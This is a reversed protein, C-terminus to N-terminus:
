RWHLQQLAEHLGGDNYEGAGVAVGVGQVGGAQGGADAFLRGAGGNLAQAQVVLFLQDAPQAAAPADDGAARGGPAVRRRLQLAHEDALDLDLAGRQAAEVLEAAQGVGGRRQLGGAAIPAPIGIM